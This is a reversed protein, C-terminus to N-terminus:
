YQIHSFSFLLNIINLKRLFWNLKGGFFLLKACHCSYMRTCLGIGYGIDSRQFDRCTIWYFHDSKQHKWIYQKTLISIKTCFKLIQNKASTIVICFTCIKFHFQNKSVDHVYHVNFNKLVVMRTLVTKTRKVNCVYNTIFVLKQM